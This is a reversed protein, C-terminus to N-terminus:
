RDIADIIINDEEIVITKMIFEDKSPFNRFKSIDLRIQTNWKPNAVSYIKKRKERDEETLVLKIVNYVNKIWNIITLLRCNYCEIM